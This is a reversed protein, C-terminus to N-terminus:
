KTKDTFNGKPAGAQSMQYLMHGKIERQTHLRSSIKKFGRLTDKLMKESLFFPFM